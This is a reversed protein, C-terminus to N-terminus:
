HFVQSSLQASVMMGMKPILFEDLIVCGIFPLVWPNFVEELGTSSKELACM